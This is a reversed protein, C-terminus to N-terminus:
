DSCEGERRPSEEATPRLPDSAAPSHLLAAEPRSERSGVSIFAKVSLTLSANVGQSAMDQHSEGRAGRCPTNAHEHYRDRM